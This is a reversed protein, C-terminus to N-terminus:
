GSGRAQNANKKTAKKKGGKEAKAAKHMKELRAPEDGDHAEDFAVEWVDQHSSAAGARRNKAM